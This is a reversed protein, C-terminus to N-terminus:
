NYKGTNSSNVEASDQSHYHLRWLVSLWVQSKLSNTEMQSRVMEKELQILKQKVDSSGPDVVGPEVQRLRKQLSAIEDRLQSILADKQRANMEIGALSKLEETLVRLHQQLQALCYNM